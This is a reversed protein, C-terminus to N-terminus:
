SPQEKWGRNRPSEVRIVKRIEGNKVLLALIYSLAEPSSPKLESVLHEFTYEPAPKGKRQSAYAQKLLAALRKVAKREGDFRTTIDKLDQSFTNM